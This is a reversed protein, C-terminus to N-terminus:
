KARADRREGKGGKGGKKAHKGHSGKVERAVKRVAKAEDKTVTGDATAKAVEANVKAVGADFKARLDKAQDAPLKAARSEMHTRARAIRADVKQKFAAAPMPFANAHKDGHRAETRAEAGKGPAAFAAGSSVALSLAVAIAVISRM